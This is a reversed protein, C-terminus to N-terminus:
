AVVEEFELNVEDLRARSLATDVSDMLCRVPWVNGPAQPDGLDLVCLGSNALREIQQLDASRLGRLTLTIRAFEPGTSADAKQGNPLTEQVRPRVTRVRAGVLPDVPLTLVSGFSYMAGLEFYTAGGQPVGTFQALAGKANVPLGSSCLLRYRGLGDHVTPPSALLAVNTGISNTYFVGALADVNVAHVYIGALNQLTFNETVSQLVTNTSRWPRRIASLGANTPPYGAASTGATWSTAAILGYYLKASM